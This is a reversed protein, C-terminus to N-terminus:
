DMDRLPGELSATIFTIYDDAKEELFFRMRKSVSFFNISVISASVVIASIALWVALTVSVSRPRNKRIIGM